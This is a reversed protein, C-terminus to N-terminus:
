SSNKFPNLKTNEFANANGAGTVKDMAGVGASFDPSTFSFMTSKNFFFFYIVITAIVIIAIIILIIIIKKKNIKSDKEEKKM